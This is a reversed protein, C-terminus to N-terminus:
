KHLHLFLCSSWSTLSYVVECPEKGETHSPPVLVPHFWVGCLDAHHMSLLYFHTCVSLCDIRGALDRIRGSCVLRDPFYLSHPFRHTYEEYEEGSSCPSDEMSPSVRSKYRSYRRMLPCLSHYNGIPAAYLSEAQQKRSVGTQTLIVYSTPVITTPVSSIIGGIAGGCKEICIAVVIAILFGVSGSVITKTWYM